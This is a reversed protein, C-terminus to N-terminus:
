QAPCTELEASSEPGDPRIPLDPCQCTYEIDKSVWEQWQKRSMNHSLKACLADAWSNLVPWLRLTNDWSGSVIQRGDPSFAVSSVMKEHGLLPEGLQKGTISDWLRLTNDLSGSVIQHGDPSFAVSFVYDTHGILSEGIQKGSTVDWLRLTKDFSGSVIQRGDPSYAVSSVLDSHGTLSEGIQKSTSTDWIRLIGDGDGSVIHRGDPSFAVSIVWKDYLPDNELDKLDISGRTVSRGLHIFSDNRHRSVGLEKRSASDWLRLTNDWSGSVIQNGNPSFAVSNVEWRHGTLPEGLQKGTAADWLLLTGDQSGSVIQRGDPSFAVANVENKHGLYPGRMRKVFAGSGAAADWV